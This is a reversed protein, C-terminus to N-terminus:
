FLSTLRLGYTLGAPRHDTLFFFSPSPAPGDYIPLCFLSPSEGGTLFQISFIMEDAESFASGKKRYALIISGLSLFVAYPLRM